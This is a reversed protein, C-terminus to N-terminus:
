VFEPKKTKPDVLLCAFSLAWGTSDKVPATPLSPYDKKQTGVTLQGTASPSGPFAKEDSEPVWSTGDHKQKQVVVYCGCTANPCPNKADPNCTYIYDDKTTEDGAHPPRHPNVVPVACPSNKTCRRFVEPM